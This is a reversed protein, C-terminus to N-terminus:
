YNGITKYALELTGTCESQIDDELNKGFDSEYYLFTVRLQNYNRTCLIQNFVSEDTGLEAAGAQPSESEPYLDPVTLEFM